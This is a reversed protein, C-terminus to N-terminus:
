LITVFSKEGTRRCDTKVLLCAWLYGSLIQLFSNAVPLLISTNPCNESTCLYFLITQVEQCLNGSAQTYSCVSNKPCPNRWLLLKWWGVQYIYIHTHIYAHMLIYKHTLSVFLLFAFRQMELAGFAQAFLNACGLAMGKLYDKFVSWWASLYVEYHLLYLRIYSASLCKCKLLFPKELRQETAGDVSQQLRLQVVQAENCFM